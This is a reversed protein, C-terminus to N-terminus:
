VPACCCSRASERVDWLYARFEEEAERLSEARVAAGKWNGAAVDDDYELAIKSVRSAGLLAAMTMISRTTAHSREVDRSEMSTRLERAGQALTAAATEIAEIAETGLADLLAGVGRADFIEARRARDDRRLEDLHTKMCEGCPVNSRPGIAAARKM